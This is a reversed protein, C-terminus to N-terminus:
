FPWSLRTLWIQALNILFRVCERSAFGSLIKRSMAVWKTKKVGGENDSSAEGISTPLSGPTPFFKLEIEIKLFFGGVVNLGCPAFRESLGFGDCIKRM